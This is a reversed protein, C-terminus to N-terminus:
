PLENDRFNSPGESRKTREENNRIRRRAWYNFAFFLSVVALSIGGEFLRYSFLAISGVVSLLILIPLIIWPNFM